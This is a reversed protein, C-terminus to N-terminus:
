RCKHVCTSSSRTIVQLAISRVKLQERLHEPTILLDGKFTYTSNPDEENADTTPPSQAEAQPELLSQQHSFDRVAPVM